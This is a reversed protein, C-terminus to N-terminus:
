YLQKKDIFFFFFFFALQWSQKCLLVKNLLSISRVGLGGKRKKMCFFAWKVLHLKKELAKGEWLFNRQIKELRVKVKILISFLTKFYIPLSALTSWILIIRGRKSIYQKKWSSLRKYYQEAVGVWVVALKFPAGLLLRLYSTPVENVRHGM